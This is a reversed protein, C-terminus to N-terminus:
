QGPLIGDGGFTAPKHGGSGNCFVWLLTRRNLPCTTNFVALPGIGFRIPAPESVQKVM